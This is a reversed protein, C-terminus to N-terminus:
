AARMLALSNNNAAHTMRDPKSGNLDHVVLLCTRGDPLPSIRFTVTSQLFPPENDQMKYSVEHDPIMSAPEPNGLANDPLWTERFAPITIARWVKQLPAELAYQFVLRQAPKQTNKDTM